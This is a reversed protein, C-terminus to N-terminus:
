FVMWKFVYIEMNKCSMKYYKWIIWQPVFYSNMNGKLTWSWLMHGLQSHLANNWPRSTMYVMSQLVWSSIIHHVLGEKVGFRLPFDHMIILHKLHRINIYNFPLFCCYSVIFHSNGSFSVTHKKRNITEYMKVYLKLFLLENM